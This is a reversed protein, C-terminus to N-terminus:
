SDNAARMLESVVGVLEAPDVPKAVHAQFGAELALRRDERRAYATLAIAPMRARAGSSKERARASRILEYGDQKPLGIDSIMVDPTVRELIALASACSGAAEVTAGQQELVIGLLDRSDEDDEVILINLGALKGVPMRDAPAAPTPNPRDSERATLAHEARPLSLTFTAGRGEGASEATVSGGHAQAIHQVLALGLGIGSHRRSVSGDQQRFPDFVHPLFKPAIGIGTDSVRIELTSETCTSAVRVTGGDPTFKIANNLLNFLAQQIRSADGRLRCEPLAGLELQIAKADIAPRLSDITARIVSPLDLNSVELQMKGSIARTVDLIDEILQMQLRANREITELGRKLKISDVEGEGENLLRAWGLIANLPTRLEHSVTALFVDKARSAEEAAERARRTALETRKLGEHLAKARVLTAARALLEAPDFDKIVFDNAGAALGELLDDQGGTATLVLIPLSAEDHSERLFRCMELGSMEPMHWDLVLLDPKEGNALLELVSAGDAFVRVDHETGLVRRAVETELPSDDVVWVLGRQSRGSNPASKDNM